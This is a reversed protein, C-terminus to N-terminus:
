RIQEKLDNVEAAIDDIDECLLEVARGLLALKVEVPIEEDEEDEDENEDIVYAFRGAFFAELEEGMIYDGDYDLIGNETVRYPMGKWDLRKGDEDYLHIYDGIELGMIEAIDEMFTNNM